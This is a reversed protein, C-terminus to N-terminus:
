NDNPAFKDNDLYYYQECILKAFKEVKKNEANKYLDEVAKIGKEDGIRYLVLVTLIKTDADIDKKLNAILHDTAEQIRYKGALYTCNKRLGENESNLGSILNGLENPKLEVKEDDQANVTTFALVLALVVMLYYKVRATKTQQTKM